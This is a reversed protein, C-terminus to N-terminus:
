KELRRPAANSAGSSASFSCDTRRSVKSAIISDSRSWLDLEVVPLKDKLLFHLRKAVWTKGVGWSGSLSITYPPEVQEVIASLRKAVDGTGFRDPEAKGTKPEDDKILAVPPTAKLVRALTLPDVAAKDGLQQGSEDTVFTRAEM